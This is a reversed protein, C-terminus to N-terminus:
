PWAAAPRADQQSMLSEQWTEGRSRRGLISRFRGIARSPANSCPVGFLIVRQSLGM